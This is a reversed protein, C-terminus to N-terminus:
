KIKKMAQNWTLLKNKSGYYQIVSESNALGLKLALNPDQKKILGALFGSAFADGAGTAEVVNVKHPKVTYIKNNHYAHIEKKGNTICITKIGLSTLKNFIENIKRKKTLIEAEIKNFILINTKNLIDKLHNIGLKVEYESPAFTIKINNKKAFDALKKQTKLTHNMASALYLWNTKIKKLNVENFKLKDSPGKYTLITRNHEYSDLIISHGSFSKEKVGIFDIKEKKLLKLIEESTQDNGLKGLYATKLGLRSFAVATNTGGGGISFKIDKVPIKSGSPYAILKRKGKKIEKLDTDVFIDKLASGTTIISYM